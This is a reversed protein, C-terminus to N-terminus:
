QALGGALGLEAKGFGVAPLLASELQAHWRPQRCAADRHTWPEHKM